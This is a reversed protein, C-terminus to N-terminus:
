LRCCIMHTGFFFCFLAVHVKLYKQVELHRECALCLIQIDEITRNQLLLREVSYLWYDFNSVSTTFNKPRSSNAVKLVRDRM